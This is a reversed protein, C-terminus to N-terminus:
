PKKLIFAAQDGRGQANMAKAERDWDPASSPGHQASAAENFAIDKRLLESGWFQFATSDDITRTLVLGAQRALIAVGKRSPLNLHRPADIQVWDARYREFAECDPTPVRLICSGGPALLRTIGGIASRPDPMHEFSHHLMVIQYPGALEDIVCKRLRFQPSFIVDEAIFPDAGTLDTFGLGALRHLLRAASGCGLDLIADDLGPKVAALAAIEAMPPRIL